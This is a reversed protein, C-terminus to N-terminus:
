PQGSILQMEILQDALYSSFYPAGLYNLHELDSHGDSPIPLSFDAPIFIGGAQHIAAAVAEEFQQHEEMGGMCEIATPHAPVEAIIVQAGHAQGLAILARYQDFQSADLEFEAYVACIPYWPDEATLQSGITVIKRDPEYGAHTTVLSRHMRTYLTDPFDARMWNRYPLYAQLASSHDYLWGSFNVDGRRYRVWPDELFRYETAPRIVTVFDRVRVVYILVQPQSQELLLAAIERITYVTMGEVGFNFVRLRGGTQLHVGWSMTVPDVGTNALSNGLILVDVGGEQAIYEQFRFWKIEFQTHFNGVSRYAPLHAAAWPTRVLGEIGAALLLLFVGALLLSPLIPKPPPTSKM